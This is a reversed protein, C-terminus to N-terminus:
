QVDSPLTFLFTAGQGPESEAWLRGGHAEIISRSISLGMGMGAMGKSTVFPEFCKRLTEKDMGPGTDAVSVQVLGENSLGTRIMIERSDDPVFHLAEIGNLVLNLLVQEVQIKDAHIHQLDKALQLLLRVNQKRAEAATFEVIENVLENLDVDMKQPTRKNVFQCLHHIIAGARLAQDRTGQLNETLKEAEETDAPLMRLALEASTTINSLPQNLEHAITAAMEGMTNLRNMHTLEAQRQRSQEEAQEREMIERKLEVNARELEVTRARVRIELGDRAERVAEEARKRQSYLIYISTLGLLLLAVLIILIIITRQTARLTQFAESYDLETAIGFDLQKDWLWTSVVRVGRYDRHGELDVGSEGAVGSTAMYTLKQQDKPTKSLQGHVLNVGPDHLKINLIAQKDPSILGVARLQEDFRSNSILRGRDDFAYTEGSQGIRGQQLITTFGEAPDIRLVFVAIVRSDEDLIPAGVFMTPLDERLRGDEDPLLVDSKDPLSVATEGSWARKLFKNQTILLNKVGVNQDRSSALNINDPGIIFYGQYGTAKQLPQFWTRLRAQARAARLSAPNRSTALLQEAAQQVDATHAFLKAAAKHEKLWFKVAHHTTGLVTSLSQAVETRVESAIRNQIVWAAFGLMVISIFTFVFLKKQLQIM